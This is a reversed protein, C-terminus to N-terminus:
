GSPPQLPPIWFCLTHFFLYLIHLCTNGLDLVHQIRLLNFLFSIFFMDLSNGSDRILFCPNMILPKHCYKTKIKMKGTLICKCHFTIQKEQTLFHLINFIITQFIITIMVIFLITILACLM